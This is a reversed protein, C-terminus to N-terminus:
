MGSEWLLEGSWDKQCLDKKYKKKEQLVTNIAKLTTNVLQPVRPLNKPDRQRQNKMQLYPYYSYWGWSNHAILSAFCKSTDSM